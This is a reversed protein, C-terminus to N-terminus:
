KRLSRTIAQNVAQEQLAPPVAYDPTAPTQPGTRGTVRVPPPAPRAPPPPAVVEAADPPLPDIVNAAPRAYVLGHEGLRVELGLTAPSATRNKILIGSTQIDVGIRLLRANRSADGQFYAAAVGVFRAKDARDVIVRQTSGPEVVVRELSLVGTAEGTLLARSVNQPSKVLTNFPGADATQVVLLTVAHALGGFENLAQEATVNLVVGGERYNWEMEKKAETPSNGGLLSNTKEVVSCGAVSAAILVTISTSPKM